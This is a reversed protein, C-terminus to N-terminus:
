WAQSEPKEVKFKESMEKNERREVMTLISWLINQSFAISTPQQSLNEM